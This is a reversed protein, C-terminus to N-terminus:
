AALQPNGVANDLWQPFPMRGMENIAPLYAETAVNIAARIEFPLLWVNHLIFTLAATPTVDAYSNLFPMERSVHHAIEQGGMGIALAAFCMTYSWQFKSVLWTIATMLAVTLYAVDEDPVTYRVLLWTWGFAVLTPSTLGSEASGKKGKKDSTGNLSPNLGCYNILMGIVGAVGLATTFLHAIVNTPDQHFKMFETYTNDYDMGAPLSMGSVELGLVTLYLAVFLLYNAHFKPGYTPHLRLGTLGVISGLTMPHPVTGYPFATVPDSVVQGLEQGFYTLAPGLQMFAYASFAFGAVAVAFSLLSVGSTACEWAYTGTLVLASISKMAVADRILMGLRVSRFVFALIYVAFHATGAITLMTQGKGRAASILALAIGMNMYGFVAEASGGFLTIGNIGRAILRSIMSRDPFQSALFAARAFFNYQANADGFADGVYSFIAPFEYFHLKLVMRDDLTANAMARHEIWHIERNYDFCTFDGPGVNVEQESPDRMPQITVTEHPGTLGYVCRYATFFPIWGLFGDIHPTIFVRDSGESNKPASLYLEDMQSNRRLVRNRQKTHAGEMISNEVTTLVNDLVGKAKDSLLSTWQHCTASETPDVTQCAPQMKKLEKEWWAPKPLGGKVTACADGAKCYTAQEGAALVPLLALAAAVAKM